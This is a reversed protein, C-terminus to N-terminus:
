ISFHHDHPSIIWRIKLFAIKLFNVLSVQGVSNQGGIEDHAVNVDQPHRTKQISQVVKTVQAIELIHTSVQALFIGQDM